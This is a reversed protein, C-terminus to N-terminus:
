TYIQFEFSDMYSLQLGPDRGICTHIVSRLIYEKKTRRGQALDWGEIPRASQSM